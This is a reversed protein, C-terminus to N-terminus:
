SLQALREHWSQAAEESEFAIRVKKGTFENIRFQVANGERTLKTVDGQHLLRTAFDAGVAFAVAVEGTQTSNAPTALAVQGTEAGIVLDAPEFDYFDQRLRALADDASGFSASKSGAFFWTLGILFLVGVPALILMYEGM